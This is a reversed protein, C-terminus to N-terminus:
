GAIEVRVTAWDLTGVQDQRGCRPREMELPEESQGGLPANEEDEPQNQRDGRVDLGSAIAGAVVACNVRNTAAMCERKGSTTTMSPRWAPYSSLVSVSTSWRLPRPATANLVATADM